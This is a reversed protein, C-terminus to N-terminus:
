NLKGAFAFYNEQKINRRLWQQPPLLSTVHLGVKSFKLPNKIEIKEHRLPWMSAFRQFKLPNSNEFFLTKKEDFIEHHMYKQM